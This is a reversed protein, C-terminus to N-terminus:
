FQLIRRAWKQELKGEKALEQLKLDSLNKLEEKTEEKNLDSKYKLMFMEEQKSEPVYHNILRHSISPSVSGDMFREALAAQATEYYM